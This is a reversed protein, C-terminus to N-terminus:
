RLNTFAHSVRWFFLPISIGILVTLLSIMLPDEPEMAGSFPFFILDILAQLFNM